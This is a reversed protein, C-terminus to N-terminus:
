EDYKTRTDLQEYFALAAEALEICEPCQPAYVDNPHADCHHTNLKALLDSRCHTEEYHLGIPCARCESDNTTDCFPNHPVIRGGLIFCKLNMIVIERAKARSEPDRLLPKFM